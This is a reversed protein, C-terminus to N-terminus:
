SDLTEDTTSVSVAIEEANEPKESTVDSHSKDEINEPIEDPCETNLVEDAANILASLDARTRTYPPYSTKM